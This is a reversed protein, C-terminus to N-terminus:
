EDNVPPTALLQKLTDFDVPKVLYRDFGVQESHRRDESTGYGSLAYLKFAGLEHAQRLHQAVEYGDMGPLGIDLFIIEPQYKSIMDLASPGDTAIAVNYGMVELLMTFSQAVDPNDDVVLVRRSALAPTAPTAPPAPNAEAPLVTSPLLPLRVVFESGQNIGSSSVEVHGGHLEVLSKVLSLGIGLGGKARDLTRDAQTFLDFLRLLLSPEIGEGSDRIRLLAENTECTISLEIRGGSPTYKIANDLLNNVVQTLRTADANVKVAETPLLLTLHCEDILPRTAEVAHNVIQCLDVPAKILSIKGQSIRAVDLLDNVIHTLHGVQRKILTSAWLILQPDDNGRSELLHAANLVPALPNRLEHALMALFTDKGRNIRRAEELQKSTRIDRETTAIAVPRSTEDHLVSITLWVDIVQGDRTLRQTEDSMVVRGGRIRDMLEHQNQILHEPILRDIGFTLAETESYGYLVEAGRNWALIKGDFDFLIVADNSDKVVAALRQMDRAVRKPATIDAFTVVVGEVREDQTRYPMIRRLYWEDAETQIEQEMPMLTQLVHQIAALMGNGAGHSVIDTIPRNLDSPILKFLHTCAPTFRKIHFYRDLFLTALNTSAFLNNLDNNSGELEAIKEELQNNVTTLEENLSQLEEKSTELEENSSQLEENASMAEENSVKLDENSTELESIANELERKTSALEAELHRIGDSEALLSSTLTAPEPTTPQFTVLFFRNGQRSDEVPLVNIHVPLLLGGRIVEAQVSTEQTGKTTQHLAARLKLRLGERAMNLLNNTTDGTPHTLYDDTPGYFYLIQYERNILVSAPAYRQLLLNNVLEGYSGNNTRPRQIPWPELSGFRYGAMLPFDVHVPQLVRSRRYIRWRKSVLDFLSRQQGITESKGLVLYGGLNLSFHFLSIVKQQLEPELYILLNRCSILDMRSFPTDTVLNQGAFTIIERLEKKVVYNSGERIFFRALREPTISATISEPYRGIRAIELAQGDIDTAFIQIKHSLNATNLHELLLMGISYAEEGTACGAVWVRIPSGPPKDTSLKPIVETAFVEWAEPERFFATVSILLDQVLSKLETPTTRVHLIYEPLAAIHCLGMRRQIRRLLMGKKYCRFDHGCQVRLLALLAHLQEPQKDAELPISPNSYLRAHEIYNLLAKPMDEVPLVIDVLGTAIANGPMGDYAATDPQQAMVLGGAAKIEKIGLTGDRGTGSLIIAVALEQQDTALSYLFHDIPMPIHPRATAADLHLCGERLTMNNNPPILYVHGPMVRQAEQAQSVPLDTQQALLEPLHSIYAPDLHVIVVFAILSHAPMAKFFTKLVELAGASAGIAVIPFGTSLNKEEDSPIAKQKKIM